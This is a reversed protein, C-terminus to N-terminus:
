SQGPRGSRFSSAGRTVPTPSVGLQKGLHEAVLRSGPVFDGNIIASRLEDYVILKMTRYKSLTGPPKEM